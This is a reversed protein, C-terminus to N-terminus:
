DRPGILKEVSQMLPADANSFCYNEIQDADAVLRQTDLTTDGRKGHFYGALWVAILKPDAVKYKVFQDCTVKSVDLMVQAQASFNTALILAFAVPINAAKRM